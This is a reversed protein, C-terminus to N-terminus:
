YLRGLVLTEIEPFLKEFSAFEEDSFRGLVYDHSPMCVGETERPRGIGIRIRFFDQTGFHEIISEVGNNGASRSSETTRLTGPAIDLDDHLVIFDAPTLKYFDLLARAARGSENMYTTPKVLIIKRGDRLTTSLEGFFKPDAQFDSAGFRERLYDLAIFGANHRTHEYETGPNGLGIIILPTSMLM